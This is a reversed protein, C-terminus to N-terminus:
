TFRTDLNSWTEGAVRRWGIGLLVGRMPWFLAVKASKGAERLAFGWQVWSM